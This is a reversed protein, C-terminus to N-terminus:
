AEVQNAKPTERKSPEDSESSESDEKAPPEFAVKRDKKRKKKRSRQQEIGPDETKVGKRNVQESITTTPHTNVNLMGDAAAPHTNLNFVVNTPLNSSHARRASPSAQMFTPEEGESGEDEAPHGYKRFHGKMLTNQAKEPPTISVYFAIVKRLGVITHKDNPRNMEGQITRVAEVNNIKSIFMRVLERESLRDEMDETFHNITDRYKIMRDLLTTMANPVHPDISEMSNLLKLYQIEPQHNGVALALVTRCFQDYTTTDPTKTAAVQVETKFGAPADIFLSMHRIKQIDSSTSTHSNYDGLFTFLDYHDRNGNYNKVKSKPAKPAVPRRQSAEFMTM